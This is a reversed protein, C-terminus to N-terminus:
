RRRLLARCIAFSAIALWLVEILIAGPNPRFYLSILLMISGAANASQYRLGEPDLRKLSVALYAGCILVSGIVGVFDLFTFDNWM